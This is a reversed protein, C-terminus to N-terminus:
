DSEELNELFKKNQDVNFSGDRNFLTKMVKNYIKVGAEDNTDLYNQFRKIANIVDSHDHYNLDRCIETHSKGGIRKYGIYCYLAKLMPLPRKRSKQIIREWSIGSANSIAQQLVLWVMDDAHKPDGLVNISLKVDLNTMKAIKDQAEKLIEYIAPFHDIPIKVLKSM